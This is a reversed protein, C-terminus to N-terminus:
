LITSIDGINVLLRDQRWGAQSGEFLERTAAIDGNQENVRVVVVAFRNDAEIIKGVFSQGSSRLTIRVVINRAKDMLNSNM